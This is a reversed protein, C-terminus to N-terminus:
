TMVRRGSVESDRYQSYAVPLYRAYLALNLNLLRERSYADLRELDLDAYLIEEEDWTTAQAVVGDGKVTMELPAYVGSRGGFGVGLMQGVMFCGIGYAPSEQVRGWVGRAQAWFDYAAADAAPDIIIRAGKLWAIRVPEFYTHDMCIPFAIRGVSTDFVEIEDGYGLGWTAEVPYLHTKPQTGILEGDPGYFYGVKRVSGLADVAIGSGAVIHVGFSRALMSFTTQYVRRSVLSLLGLLFAMPVDGGEFREAGSDGRGEGGIREIGPIFGGFPYSGTDEPFIVLQAGARVARSVLGYMIQAYETASGVLRGRLQVVAVRIVEKRSAAAREYERNALEQTVLSPRSKWWLLPYIFLRLLLGLLRPM